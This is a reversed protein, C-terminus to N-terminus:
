LRACIGQTLDLEANTSNVIADTTEITIDGQKVVLTLVDSTLRLGGDDSESDGSIAYDAGQSAQVEVKFILIYLSPM